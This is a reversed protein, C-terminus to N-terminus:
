DHKTEGGLPPFMSTPDLAKDALLCRLIEKGRALRSMVTGRPVNLAEAIQKYSYGEFYFLMLPARFLEDVNLLADMVTKSDLRDVIEPTVAPLEHEVASVEFHPFRAERRKRGLFERHLTTILWSRLKAPERVQAHKCAWIYFTQQTLDRAENEQRTLSLAFWYLGSYHATVVEEFERETM